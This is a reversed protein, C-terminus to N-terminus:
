GLYANAVLLLTGDKNVRYTNDNITLYVDVGDDKALQLIDALAINEHIWYNRYGDTGSINMNSIYGDYEGKRYFNDIANNRFKEIVKLSDENVPIHNLGCRIDIDVYQPYIDLNDIIYNSLEIDLNNDEVYQPNSSQYNYLNYTAKNDNKIYSNTLGFGRTSYALQGFILSGIMAVIYILPIKYSFTLKRKYLFYAIMFIAFLLAYPIINNIAFEVITERRFYFSSVIMLLTIVMYIFIIFPYTLYNDSISNAREVDRDIYHKKLIVISVILFLLMMGIYKIYQIIELQDSEPFLIKLSEVGMLGPSLYGIFKLSNDNGGCVYNSIFLSGAWYLFLPLLTYAGLIVIGDLTNNALTFIAVNFLVLTSIALLSVLAVYVFKLIHMKTSLAFVIVCLMLSLYIVLICFLLGTCLLKKRSIPLSYFTDVARKDHIYYFVSFPVLFCMIGTIFIQIGNSFSGSSGFCNLLTVLLILLLIYKKSKLLYTFYERSFM